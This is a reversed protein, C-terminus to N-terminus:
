KLNTGDEYSYAHISVNGEGGLLQADWTFNLTNSSPLIYDLIDVSTELRPMGVTSDLVSIIQLPMNVDFDVGSNFSVSMEVIGRAFFMPIFLKVQTLNM